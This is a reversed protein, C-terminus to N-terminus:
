FETIIHEISGLYSDGFLNLHILLPYLNYFNNRLNFCPELPYIEQYSQYFSEQFGGFLQTMAIDVERHGYYVAPDILIAEENTSCIVNGSWLDGHIASPKEVPFIAPLQKYIKDFYELHKKQLKKNDFALKVQPKLRNEIFFSSFTDFYTNKQGLKGMFNSHDLGFKESKQQHLSALQQALNEFFRKSENGIDIWELVLFIDNNFEGEIIIKPTIAKNQQLFHLGSVEEKFGNNFVSKSNTKVFYSHTNSSIKYTNSISGGSVSQWHYSENTLHKEIHKQLTLNM